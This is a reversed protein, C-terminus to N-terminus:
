GRMRGEERGGGGRGEGERGEGGRRGGGEEGGLKKPKLCPCPRWTDVCRNWRDKDKGQVASGPGWGLGRQGEGEPDSGVEGLPEWVGAGPVSWSCDLPAVEGTVGARNAKEGLM